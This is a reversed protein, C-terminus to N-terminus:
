SAGPRLRWVGPTGPELIGEDQLARRAKRAALQWRPEGTPSADRDGPRLGDALREELAPFVEEAALEGGHEQLLAVVPATLEEPSTWRRPASRTSPAAVSSRAATARTGPVRPTTTRVRPPPAKEVPPPKPQGHVCQSLPLDCLECYDEAV